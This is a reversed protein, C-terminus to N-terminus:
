QTMAGSTYNKLQESWDYDKFELTYGSTKINLYTSVISRIGNAGGFDAKFWQMIKTVTIKKHVKDIETETSLFSRTATELQEDIYKYEYFAIPPCSKAGCNLAFHIRFDIENVALKKIKISPLFQPLYGLSYKWRYRRLIGHEVDDLSFMTGAIPILKETFIEPQKKKERIALLQYYSNYINIWFTKRANDNGLGSILEEMKLHSLATEMSDTAVETKVNLLLQESLSIIKQNPEANSDGNSRSTGIVWILIIALLLLPIILVKKV